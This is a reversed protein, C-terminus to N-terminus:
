FFNLILEFLMATRLAGLDLRELVSIVTTTYYMPISYKSLLTLIKCSLRGDPIFLTM